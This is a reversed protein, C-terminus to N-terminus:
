TPSGAEAPPALALQLFAGSGSLAGAGREGEVILVKLEAAVDM